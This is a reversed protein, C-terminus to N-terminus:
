IAKVEVKNEQYIANKGDLSHKSSTLMNVGPTGSYLLVCDKRITADIKVKLVIKGHESSIQVEQNELFGAEKHLYVYKERYFQSNLSKPSKPTLLFMNKNMDFDNDYEELFCFEGDDTDFGNQYPIEERSEVQWSGDIKQVAFNKFHSLYYEESEIEIEFAECLYRSLEYESIGYESELIQPMFLMANHAYSTRIDEKFLFNKAPIVLDARQSTENEYLGFYIVNAVSEMSRIVRQTDPMQSLPNAGQIFVSSFASFDTNVKSVRKVQTKFPSEIGEKSEGMYAVGCGEKGFLGLMVAFADIARMIDAGDSYKQIGVGCVIATKKGKVLELLMGIQGLTVDIDELTAKIRVTQTLEYLEEYESAYEQLYEEDYENEIHLFRCLLLALYLDGHPKLQIHLAANRASEIKRPDIVILTKDKLLPLLHSNTVHPNRGWLIVVESKEIESLPMNKNSGRGQLIGAAGAGDCLSGNTLTTGFSAFFHDSVEQMLGFNGSGRYHLTNQAGSERLMEVLKDLAQEMSIAEGKYRAEKIQEHKEYHHLHPCLFGKTHGNKAGLIKGEDYVIECADYCDLPCATTKKNM